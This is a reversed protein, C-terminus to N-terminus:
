KQENDSAINESMMRNNKTPSDVSGKEYNRDEQITNTKRVQHQQLNNTVSPPLGWGKMLEDIDDHDALGASNQQEEEEETSIQQADFQLFDSDMWEDENGMSFKSTRPPSRYRESKVNEEKMTEAIRSQDEEEKDIGNQKRSDLLDDQLYSLDM